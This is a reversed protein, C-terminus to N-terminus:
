ATEFGNQTRPRLGALIKDDGSIKGSRRKHPKIQIEGKRGEPFAHKLSNSVLENIIGLPIRTDMGLFFSEIDIKIHIDQNDILYSMFLENALKQIYAKFDFTEFNGTEGTKYLEEHILSM